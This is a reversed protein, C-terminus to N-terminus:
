LTPNEGRQEGIDGQRDEVIVEGLEPPATAGVDITSTAAAVSEGVVPQNPIGVIEHHEDRAVPVVGLVHLCLNCRHESRHSKDERLV